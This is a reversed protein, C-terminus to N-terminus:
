STVRVLDACALKPPNKDDKDEGPARLLHLVISKARIGTSFPSTTTAKGRGEPSVEIPYLWIANPPTPPGNPDKLFRDGGEGEFCARDHVDAIYTAKPDLGGLLVSTTTARTTAVMAAKGQIPGTGEPASPVNAFEGTYDFTARAPVNAAANGVGAGTAAVVLAAASAAAATGAWRARASAAVPVLRRSPSKWSTIM